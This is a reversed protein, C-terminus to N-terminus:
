GTMEGVRGLGKGGCEICYGSGSKIDKVEYKYKKCTRAHAINWWPNRRIGYSCFFCNPQWPTHGCKRYRYQIMECMIRTYIKILLKPSAPTASSNLSIASAPYSECHQFSRIFVDCLKLCLFIYSGFPCTFCITSLMHIM